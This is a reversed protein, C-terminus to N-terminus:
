GKYKWHRQPQNRLTVNEWSIIECYWIVKIWIFKAFATKINDTHNVWINDDINEVEHPGPWYVMNLKAWM